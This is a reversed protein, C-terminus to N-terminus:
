KWCEFFSQQKWKLCCPPSNVLGNQSNAAGQKHNPTCLYSFKEVKWIRLSFNKLKEKRRKEDLNSGTSAPHLPVTLKEPKALPKFFKKKWIKHHPVALLVRWGAPSNRPSQRKPKAKEPSKRKELNELPGKATQSQM